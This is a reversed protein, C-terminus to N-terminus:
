VLERIGEPLTRGLLVPENGDGTMIVMEELNTMGNFQPDYLTLEVTLVMNEELPTHDYPTIFPPEHLELGLDHGVFAPLAIKM